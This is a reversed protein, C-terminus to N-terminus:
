RRKPKSAEGTCSCYSSRNSLSARRNSMNGTPLRFYPQEPFYGRGVCGKGIWTRCETAAEAIGKITTAGVRETLGAAEAVRKIAPQFTQEDFCVDAPDRWGDNSSGDM